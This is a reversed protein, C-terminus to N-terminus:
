SRKEELIDEGPGVTFPGQAATFPDIVDASALSAATLFFVGPAHRFASIGPKM